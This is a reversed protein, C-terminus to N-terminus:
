SNTLHRYINMYETAMKKSSFRELYDKRCETRDINGINQIAEVLGNITEEENVKKEELFGTKKDKVIEELAGSKLAIVPTGSALSEIAVMGFPEDWTSPVLTAIANGYFENKEKDTKLFGVYEIYEKNNEILPKIVEDFYKDYYKGAIKLKKKAKICAKIALHVGKPEIIRGSYAFYDISPNNLPTYASEPIGNYVNGVFNIKSSLTKQQSLSISIYNLNPYREFQSRYKTLYNFPEHHTFCVPVKSFDSIPLSIEEELSFIHLVDLKENAYKIAEVILDSQVQRSLSIFTLPHKKLLEIYSYGRLKLESEFFSLDANINNVGEVIYGPSFFTVENGLEKLEKCLTIALTGPAFIVDNFIDKTMFIHPLVIGIRV